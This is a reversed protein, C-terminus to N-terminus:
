NKKSKHNNSLKVAKKIHENYSKVCEIAQKLDTNISEFNGNNYEEVGSNAYVAIRNAQVMALRYEDKAVQLDPSVNYLDSDEIAKQSDTYLIAAYTSASTFDYNKAATTLSKMDNDVQTMDSVCMTSWKSDQYKTTEYILTPASKTTEIPTTTPTPTSEPTPTLSFPVAITSGNVESLPAAIVKANNENNNIATPTAPFAVIAVLVLCFVVFFIVVGPIFTNLRKKLQNAALPITVIAALIFFLGEIYGHLIMSRLSMVLFFAGFVYLIIGTFPVNKLKKLIGDM